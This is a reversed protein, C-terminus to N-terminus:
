FPLARGIAIGAALVALVTAVIVIARRRAEAKRVKAMTTVKISGPPPKAVKVKIIKGRGTSIVEHESNGM